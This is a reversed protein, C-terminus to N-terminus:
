PSVLYMHVYLSLAIAPEAMCDLMLTMCYKSISYPVFSTALATLLLLMGSNSCLKVSPQLCMDCPYKDRADIYM